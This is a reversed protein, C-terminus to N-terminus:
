DFAHWEVQFEPSAQEGRLEIGSQNNCIPQCGFEKLFSRLFLGEFEAISRVQLVSLLDFALYAFFAGKTAIYNTLGPNGSQGSAHDRLRNGVSNQTSESMGVYVLRSSRFPYEIYGKVVYIFYLGVDGRASRISVDDLPKSDFFRITPSPEM